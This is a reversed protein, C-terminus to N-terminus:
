AWQAVEGYDRPEWGPNKVVVVSTRHNGPGVAKCGRRLTTPYHTLDRLFVAALSHRGSPSRVRSRRLAGSRTVDGPVQAVWAWVNYRYINVSGFILKTSFIAGIAGEHLKM